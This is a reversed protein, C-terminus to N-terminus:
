SFNFYLFTFAALRLTCVYLDIIHEVTEKRFRYRVFFDIDDLVYIDQNRDLERRERREVSELHQLDNFDDQEYDEYRDAM